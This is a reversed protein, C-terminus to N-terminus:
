KKETGCSSFFASFYIQQLFKQMYQLFVALVLSITAYAHSRLTHDHVPSPNLKTGFGENVFSSKATKCIIYTSKFACVVYAKM